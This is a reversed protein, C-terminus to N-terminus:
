VMKSIQYLQYVLEFNKIQLVLTLPLSGRGVVREEEKGGKLLLYMCVYMCVYM